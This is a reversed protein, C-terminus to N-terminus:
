INNQRIPIKDSHNIGQYSSIGEPNNHFDEAQKLITQCDRNAKKDSSM